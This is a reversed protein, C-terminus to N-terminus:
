CQTCSKQLSTPRSLVALAKVAVWDEAARRVVVGIFEGRCRGLQAGPVRLYGFERAEQGRALALGTM